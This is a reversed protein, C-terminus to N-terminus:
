RVVKIILGNCEVVDGPRVKRGRQLEVAGNLAAQGDAIMIKAHGGTSAAGSLKLLSDLKIYETSIEVSIM